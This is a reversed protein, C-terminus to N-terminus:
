NRYLQSRVQAPRIVKGNLTYGKKVVSVITGIDKEDGEVEKVVEHLVPLAEGETAIVILGHRELTRLLIREIMRLGEYLNRHEVVLVDERQNPDQTELPPPPPTELARTLTDITDLLDSSFRQITYAQASTVERRTQSQM